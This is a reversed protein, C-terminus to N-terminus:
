SRSVNVGVAKLMDYDPPVPGGISKMGEDGAEVAHKLGVPVAVLCGAKIPLREGTEIDNIWGSGALLFISDESEVHIHPINKEGPALEVVNMVAYRAGMHPSVTLYAKKAIMTVNIGDKEPDYITISM